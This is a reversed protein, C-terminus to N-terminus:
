HPAEQRLRAAARALVLIFAAGWTRRDLCLRTGGALRGPMPAFGLPEAGAQGPQLLRQVTTAPM